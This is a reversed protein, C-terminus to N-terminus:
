KQNEEKIKEIEKDLWTKKPGSKIFFGVIVILVVGAGVIIFEKPLSFSPFSFRQGNSNLSSSNQQVSVEGSYGLLYSENYTQGFESQFGLLIATKNSIGAFAFEKYRSKELLPLEFYNGNAYFKINKFTINATNSIRLVSGNGSSFLLIDPFFPLVEIKQTRKFEKLIKNYSYIISINPTFNGSFTSEFVIFYTSNKPSQVRAKNSEMAFEASYNIISFSGPLYVLLDKLEADKNNDVKFEFRQREQVKKSNSINIKVSVPFEVVSL